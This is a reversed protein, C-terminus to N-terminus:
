KSTRNAQNQQSLSPEQTSAKSVNM